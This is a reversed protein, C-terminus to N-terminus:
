INISENNKIEKKLLKFVYLIATLEAINNTLNNGKLELSLNRKDNDGFWIGIGARANVLGNDSCSGDTYVNM